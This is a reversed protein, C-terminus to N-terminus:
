DYREEDTKLTVNIAVENPEEVSLTEKDAEITMKSETEELAINGEAKYNVFEEGVYMNVDTITNINAFISIQNRSFLSSEKIAKDNKISISGDGNIEKLEFKVTNMQYPYELVYEDNIVTTDKNINGVVAGEANYVTINGDEGLINNFEEVSVRTQRYYMDNLLAIKTNTILGIKDPEDQVTLSTMNKGGKIEVKDITNYKTEYKLSSTANAYLYGKYITGNEAQVEVGVEPAVYEEVEEGAVVENNEEPAPEEEPQEEGAVVEENNEEPINQEEQPEETAEEGAVVANDAPDSNNQEEQGAIVSGEDPQTAEDEGGAMVADNGDSTGAVQSDSQEEGAMISDSVAIAVYYTSTVYSQLMSLICLLALIKKVMGKRLNKNM